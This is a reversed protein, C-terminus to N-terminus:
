GFVKDTASRWKLISFFRLKNSGVFLLRRTTKGRSPRKVNVARIEFSFQSYCFTTLAHLKNFTIYGQFPKELAKCM